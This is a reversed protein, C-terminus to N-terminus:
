FRNYPYDEAFRAFDKIDVIGDPVDPSIDYASNSTLWNSIFEYLDIFDVKCDENFDSKKFFADGAHWYLLGNAQEIVDAVGDSDTDISNPDDCVIIRKKFEINNKEYFWGEGLKTMDCYFDYNGPSSPATIDFSVTVTDATGVTVGDPLAKCDVMRNEGIKIYSGDDSIGYFTYVGSQPVDLYTTYRFGFNDESSAPTFDFDSLYGSDLVALDDFFPMYDWEGEYYEYYIGNQNSTADRYMWGTPIDQRLMGPGSMEVDLQEYVGREFFEVVLKHRGATLYLKGSKEESAHLGDNFVVTQPIVLENSDIICTGLKYGDGDTWSDWGDNRVTVSVNYSEGTEMIRPLTDDIWTARYYNDGGLYYRLLYYYTYIDPFRHNNGSGSWYDQLEELESPYWIISRYWGFNVGSGNMNLDSSTYGVGLDGRIRNVPLTDLLYTHDTNYTSGLGDSSFPMYILWDFYGLEEEEWVCATISYDTMRYYNRNHERWIRLADPYNSPGRGGYLRDVHVIGAGSGWAAFFDNDTKHRYLYDLTVYDRDIIDPNIGWNCSVNAKAPDNYRDGALWYHTWSVNDYDGLGIMAYNGPVVNGAADIYGQDVLDQYSPPADQVLRREEMAPKFRGYLSCNSVWTQAPADAESYCNYESKLSNFEVETQGNHVGQDYDKYLFNYFGCFKIMEMQGTQENCSHLIAKFTERDTGLPQGPDDSPYIDGWPCLEFCFAREAVAYDLNSLQTELDADSRLGYLDLTYMLVEPNCLGTDLYKEKAWIYADCRASGTSPTSSQWITGSGTFKGTLDVLVPFGPGSSDNVLWNYMSGASTDKRVAIADEVGAVTTAVLSTSIVGSGPDPDYLVVGKIEDAFYEIMEYVDDFTHRRWGECLGGPQTLINMWFYDKDTFDLFVKPSERNVVGQVCVASHRIDYRSDIAAQSCGRLDLYYLTPKNVTADFCWVDGRTISSDGGVEDVRWYYREGAELEGADFVSQSYNGQYVGLPNGTEASSVESYNTGLYVNHSEAGDGAEWSLEVALESDVIFSDGDGPDEGYARSLNTELVASVTTMGPNSVNYDVVLRARPDGGYASIEGNSLCPLGRQDGELKLVGGTININGSGNRTGVELIRAYIIGGNLNVQGTGTYYPVSLLNKVTIDGSSVTITGNGGYDGGVYLNSEVTLSGGSVILHGVGTGYQSPGRSGIVVNDGSFGGFSISGGSAIELTSIQRWDGLLMGGADNAFHDLLCYTQGEIYISNGTAPLQDNQWNYRNSWQWGSGGNDWFSWVAGMGVSCFLFCFMFLSLVKIKM